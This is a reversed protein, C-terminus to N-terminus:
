NGSSYFRKKLYLYIQTPKWSNENERARFSLHDVWGVAWHSCREIQFEGPFKKELSQILRHTKRREKSTSDRYDIVPGLSWTVFLQENEGHYGFNPVRSLVKTLEREM